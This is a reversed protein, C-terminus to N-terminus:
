IYKQICITYSNEEGKCKAMYWGGKAQNPIVTLFTLNRSHLMVNSSLKSWYTVRNLISTLSNYIEKGVM